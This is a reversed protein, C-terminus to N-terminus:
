KSKKLCPLNESNDLMKRAVENQKDQPLIKGIVCIEDSTIKSVVLFSTTAELNEENNSVELRVIMGKLSKM